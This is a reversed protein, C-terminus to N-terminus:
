QTSVPTLLGHATLARELGDAGDAPDHREALLGVSRAADVNASLDDIFLVDNPRLALKRLIALFYAPDPKAVGLECSYFQRDLHDGYRMVERMTAARRDHQNTALHCPVGQARVRRVLELAAPVSDIQDWLTLIREPDVDIGRDRLLTELATRFSGRGIMPGQEEVEIVAAPFDAGGIAILSERWGPRTRQLVGDADWLVAAIPM